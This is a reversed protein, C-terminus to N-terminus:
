ALYNLSLSLFLLAPFSLCLKTLFIKYFLSFPFLSRLDELFRLENSFEKLVREIKLLLCKIEMKFVLFRFCVRVM